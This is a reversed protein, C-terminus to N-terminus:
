SSSPHNDDKLNKMLQHFYYLKFLMFVKNSFPTSANQVRQTSLEIIKKNFINLLGTLKWKKLQHYKSVITVKKEIHLDPRIEQIKILNQLAQKTDTIFEQNTKLQTHIVPNQINILKLGAKKADLGFVVDEYGYNKLREDFSVLSFVSKKALFNNSHFLAPSSSEIKAGYNWHLQYEIPTLEQDYERGGSILDANTNHLYNTLFDSNRIESDGDLFLLLEYKATAALKNRIASRGINEPLYIVNFNSDRWEKLYVKNEETSGDDMILVEFDVLLRNCQVKLESFLRPNQFNYHPICISIM